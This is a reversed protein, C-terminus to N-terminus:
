GARQCIDVRRQGLQAQRDRIIDFLSVQADAGAGVTAAAACVQRNIKVVDGFYQGNRFPRSADHSTM